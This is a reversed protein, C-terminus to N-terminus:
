VVPYGTFGHRLFTDHVADALAVDPSITVPDDVMLDRVRAGALSQETVVSLDPSAGSVILATCEDCGLFSGLLDSYMSYVRM